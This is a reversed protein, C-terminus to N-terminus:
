QVHRTCEVELICSRGGREGGPRRAPGPEASRPDGVEGRRRLSRRAGDNPILKAPDGDKLTIRYRAQRTREPDSIKNAVKVATGVALDFQVPGGPSKAATETTRYQIYGGLLDQEQKLAQGHADVWLTMDFEAKPKGDVKTTQEVKLLPRQRGM